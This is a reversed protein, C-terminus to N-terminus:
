FIKLSILIVLLADHGAAALYDRIAKSAATLHNKVTGVPMNLEAAIAAPKLGQERSMSYIKRRTAPLSHIAKQVDKKLESIQMEQEPTNPVGPMEMELNLRARNNKKQLYNFCLRAAITNLWAPFNDIGTLKDRSLWVRIFSEQIIEETDHESRSMKLIYARLRPAYFSYIHFFAQEDGEATRSLFLRENNLLANELNCQLNQLIFISVSRELVFKTKLGPQGLVAPLLKINVLM